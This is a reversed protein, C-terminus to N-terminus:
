RVEHFGQQELRPLSVRGSDRRVLLSLDDRRFLAYDVQLESSLEAYDYPLVALDPKLVEFSYRSDRKLHGPQYEFWAEGLKPVIPLLRAVHRDSKGLLDITTRGSFYPVVGAFNVAIVADENTVERVIRALAVERVNVDSNIPPVVAVLKLAGRVPHTIGNFQVIAVISGVWWIM